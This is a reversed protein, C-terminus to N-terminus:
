ESRCDDVESSKSFEDISSNLAEAIAKDARATAHQYILAARASDHGMRTMLDRTSAGTAAVLTNGTHRLDHFHLGPVGVTAVVARWGVQKAFNNRRMPPRHKSPGTFVLAGPDDPVYEALHRRIVPVIAAPISVTRRGARSKTPGSLCQGLVVISIWRDGSRVGARM